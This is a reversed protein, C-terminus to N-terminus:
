TWLMNENIPKRSQDQAARQIITRQRRSFPSAVNLASVSRGLGALASETLSEIGSRQLASILVARRVWESPLGDMDALRPHKLDDKNLAVALPILTEHSHAFEARAAAGDATADLVIIVGDSEDILRRTMAAGAAELPDTSDRLGATDLWTVPYGRIEGPIEVWDRTTGPTPSVLSVAQDALTNALTSKGANPPGVIAIRVPRTFWEIVNPRALLERCRQEFQRADTLAALERFAARMLDVQAMLWDVGRATLVKPLLDYADALLPDATQWLEAATADRRRLGCASLLEACRRVLFPSGHLHLRLDWAPAPSHVSILVDDIPQGDLDLLEARVIQGPRWDNPARRTRVHRDLFGAVGPTGIARIVAIAAPGSATLLQFSDRADDHPNAAAASRV